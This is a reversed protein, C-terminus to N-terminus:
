KMFEFLLTLASSDNRSSRGCFIWQHHVSSEFKYKYALIVAVFVASKHERTLRLGGFWTRPNLGSSSRYYISLM